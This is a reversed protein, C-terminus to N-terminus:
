VISRWAEPRWRWGVGVVGMAAAAMVIVLLCWVWVVWVVGRGGVGKGVRCRASSVEMIRARCCARLLDRWIREGGGWMAMVM